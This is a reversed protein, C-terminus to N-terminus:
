KMNRRIRDLEEDISTNNMNEHNRKGGSQKNKGNGALLTKLVLAGGGFILVLIIIWDYLSMYVLHINTSLIISVIILLVSFATFVKSPFSAGSVFMWVIGIILPIIILGSTVRMGGFAFYGFGYSTVIVKQSLIYLGVVLMVAGGAFQLLENKENKM